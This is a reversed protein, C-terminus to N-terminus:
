RWGGCRLAKTDKRWAPPIQSDHSLRRQAFKVFSCLPLGAQSIATRPAIAVQLWVVPFRGYPVAITTVSEEIRVTCHVRVRVHVRVHQAGQGVEVVEAERGSMCSDRRADRKRLSGLKAREEKKRGRKRMGNNRRQSAKNEM